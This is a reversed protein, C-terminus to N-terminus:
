IATVMKDPFYPTLATIYGIHYPDYTWLYQKYLGCIIYIYIFSKRKGFISAETIQKM